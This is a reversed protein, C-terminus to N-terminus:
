GGRGAGAGPEVGAPRDELRHPAVGRRGDGEGAVEQEEVAAAVLHRPDEGGVVQDGVLLAEAAGDAEGLAAGPAASTTM